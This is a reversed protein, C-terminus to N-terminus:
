LMKKDQIRYNLSLKNTTKSSQLAKDGEEFFTGLCFKQINAKFLLMVVYWKRAICNQEYTQLKVCRLKCFNHMFIIPCMKYCANISRQARREKAALMLLLETM